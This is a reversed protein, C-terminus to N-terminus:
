VLSHGQKKIRKLVLGFERDTMAEIIRKASIIEPCGTVEGDYFIRENAGFKCDCRDGSYGCVGCKTQPNEMRM